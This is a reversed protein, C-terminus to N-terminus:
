RGAKSEKDKALNLEVGSRILAKLADENLEDGEHVDVGRLKNGDLVANFLHEPDPLGAGEYLTLRVREKLLGLTCVIGGHEFVPTGM